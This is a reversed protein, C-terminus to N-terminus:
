RLASEAALERIMAEFVAVERGGIFRRRVYGRADILVNTPLEGGNFRRGVENRPDLLVPYSIAKEKVFRNLNARIEALDPEHIADSEGPEGEAHTGLAHGHEDVETQGDLSIGLVVLRTANKKQLEILSPIEVQCGPCWTTWFNLLVVKGKFDSFRVTKGALDKLAFDTMPLRRPPTPEVRAPLNIAPYDQEHSQWWEKWHRQGERITKLHAPEVSSNTGGGLNFNAQRVRVGFDQKTWNRLAADASTAVRLDPDDLLNVVVPLVTAPDQRRLYQLGLLRLDPDSDGLLAVALRPVAPNKLQSLTALALERVSADVDLAAALLLPEAGQCLEPRAVANERLYVAVLARHPVKQTDWFKRLVAFPDRAGDALDRFATESPSGSMLLSRLLVARRIPKRVLASTLAVSILLALLCILRRQAFPRLNM